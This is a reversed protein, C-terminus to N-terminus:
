DAGPLCTGTSLLFYHTAPCLKRFYIEIPKLLIFGWGLGPEACTSGPHRRAPGAQSLCVEEKNPHPSVDHLVKGPAPPSDFNHEKM